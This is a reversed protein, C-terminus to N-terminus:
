PSPDPPSESIMGTAKLLGLLSEIFRPEFIAHGPLLPATAQMIWYGTDNLSGARPSIVSRSGNAIYCISGPAERDCEQQSCPCVVEGSPCKEKGSHYDLTHSFLEEAHGETRTALYRQSSQIEEIKPVFGSRASFSGRDQETIYHRRYRLLSDGKLNALHFWFRTATDSRSTISVILPGSQGVASDRCLYRANAKRAPPIDLVQWAEILSRAYIAPAAPNVLVILDAPFDLPNSRKGPGGGLNQSRGVIEKALAREVILGGFSHGIVISKSHPSSKRLNMIALLVATAAPAAAVRQATKYRTYFSMEQLLPIAHISEGPWALYVGIIPRPQAPEVASAKSAAEEHAILHLMMEFSRLSGGEENALSANNQWGHVFTVIIAGQRNASYAIQGLAHLLQEPRWFEGYDDLEIICVTVGPELKRIYNAPSHRYSQYSTCSLFALALLSAAGPGLWRSAAEDM